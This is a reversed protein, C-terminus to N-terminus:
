YIGQYEISSWWLHLAIDNFTLPLYVTNMAYSTSATLFTYQYM